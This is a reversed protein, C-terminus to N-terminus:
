ATKDKRPRGGKKGNERSAKARAATRTQGGKRANATRAEKEKQAAWREWSGVAAMILGPVSICFNPEDWVLAEGDPDIQVAALQAPTGDALEQYRSVPFSFGCGNALRLVISATAEDYAAAIARPEQDHVM